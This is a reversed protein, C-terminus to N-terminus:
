PKSENENLNRALVKEVVQEVDALFFGSNASPQQVAVRTGTYGLASAIENWRYVASNIPIVVPKREPQPAVAYATWMALVLLTVAEVAYPLTDVLGANKPSVSSQLFDVSSLVGFGLALGFSVDRISLRLANMCLCLFALLCLELISVAHMLRIALEPLSILFSHRFSTTSLCVILSVVAVWRFLLVGFSTLGPLPALAARFIDLCVFYILVASGMYVPWYVSFYAIYWTLTHYRETAALLLFLLPAAAVRLLLYWHMSRFRHHLGRKWFLGAFLVTLLFEVGGLVTMALSSSM